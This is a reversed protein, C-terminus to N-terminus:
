CGCFIMVNLLDHNVASIHKSQQIELPRVAYGVSTISLRGIVKMASIECM